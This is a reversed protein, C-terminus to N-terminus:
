GEFAAPAANEGVPLADTKAEAKAKEPVKIGQAKLWAEFAAQDQNLAWASIRVGITNWYTAVTGDSRPKEVKEVIANANKADGRIAQNRLFVKADEQDRDPHGLWLYGFQLKPLPKTRDVTGDDKRAFADYSMYFSGDELAKAMQAAQEPTVSVAKKGAVINKLFTEVQAQQASYQREVFRDETKIKPATKVATTAM